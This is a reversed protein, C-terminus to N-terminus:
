TSPAGQSLSNVFGVVAATVVEPHLLHPSHGPGPLVMREVPGAVGAEIADLQRLSGYEDDECQVLLVPCGIGELYEEINWSRFGPDLWAEAWGRFTSEPDVHYKAMKEALDSSSFSAEIARISELGTDEVFVHPALLVLGAVAHNAGAYIISISAGDSHGVL